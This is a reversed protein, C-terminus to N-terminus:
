IKLMSKIENKIEAFLVKKIEAVAEEKPTSYIDVNNKHRNTGEKMIKTSVAWAVASAEKGVYGFKAEAWEELPAIPPRKGAPRGVELTQIPARNGATAVLSIKNESEKVEFSKSTRYTANEDNEAMRQRIDDALSNLITKIKETIM